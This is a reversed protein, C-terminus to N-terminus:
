DPSPRNREQWTCICAENGEADALVWYSPAYKDTVLHGGAALAAQVRNMAEDHAVWIDLHFRNRETRPEDMQQFWMTPGIKDADVLDVDEVSQYGLVAQWFPFVQEGHLIDLAIEVETLGAYDPKAGLQEALESIRRGLDVDRQSIGGIDHSSMALHVRSWRIDIEPHHNAQEAYGAVQTVFRTAKDFDGCDVTLHMRNAVLRWTPLAASAQESTLKDTESM